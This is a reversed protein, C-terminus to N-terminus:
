ECVDNSANYSESYGLYEFNIVQELVTSDIVIKARIPDTGHFAMVKAKLTSIQLGSDQIYQLKRLLVSALGELTCM